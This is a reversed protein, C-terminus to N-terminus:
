PTGATKLPLWVRYAGGTAGADAFPVLTATRRKGDKLGVVQVKIPGWISQCQPSAGTFAVDGAGPLGPNLKEDYALVFPGWALAALGKNGYEGPILRAALNFTVAIRDGDRWKRQPM